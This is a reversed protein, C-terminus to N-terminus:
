PDPITGFWGVDLAFVDNASTVFMMGRFVVPTVELRSSNRAHFVWQARLQVVNTRNVQALGSYRRGSYDGNYSIWNDTPPAVLLDDSGVLIESSLTPDPARDDGFSPLCSFALALYILVRV